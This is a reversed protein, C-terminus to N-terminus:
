LTVKSYKFPKICKGPRGTAPKSGSPKINAAPMLESCTFNYSKRDNSLTRITTQKKVITM